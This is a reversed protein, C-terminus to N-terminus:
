LPAYGYIPMPPESFIFGIHRGLIWAFNWSLIVIQLGVVVLRVIVDSETKVLEAPFSPTQPQDVYHFM